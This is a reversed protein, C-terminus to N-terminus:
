AGLSPRTAEFPNRGQNDLALRHIRRDEHLLDAFIGVISMHNLIHLAIGKHRTQAAHLAAIRGLIGLPGIGCLPGCREPDLFKRYKCGELDLLM